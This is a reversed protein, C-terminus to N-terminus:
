LCCCPLSYKFNYRNFLETVKAKIISILANKEEDYMRKYVLNIQSGIQYFEKQFKNYSDLSNDILISEIYYQGLVAKYYTIDNSKIGKKNCKSYNYINICSDVFKSVVSINNIPVIFKSLYKIDESLKPVKNIIEQDSNLLSNFIDKINNPLKVDNEDWKAFACFIENCLTCIKSNEM